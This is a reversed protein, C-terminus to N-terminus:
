RKSHGRRPLHEWTCSTFSMITLRGAWGRRTAGPSAKPILSRRRGTCGTRNFGPHLTRGKRGSTWSTFTIIERVCAMSLPRSIDEEEKRLPVVRSEGNSFIRVSVGEVRPAWVRFRVKDKGVMLAGTAGSWPVTVARYDGTPMGERGTYRNKM